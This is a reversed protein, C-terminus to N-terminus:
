RAMRLRELEERLPKWYARDAEREKKEEADLARELAGEDMSELASLFPRAPSVRRLLAADAAAVERLMAPTRSELLWFELQAPSPLQLPIGVPLLAGGTLKM